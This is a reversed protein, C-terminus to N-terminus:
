RGAVLFKLRLVKKEAYAHLVYAGQALTSVDLTYGLRSSFSHSLLQQGQMNYVHIERFAENSELHLLRSAPNPYVGIYGPKAPDNVLRVLVEADADMINVNGQITLFGQRSVQYSYQGPFLEEYSYLGPEYGLGQLSIRADDVLLGSQNTVVFNLSYIPFNEFVPSLRNCVQNSIMVQYNGPVMGANQYSRSTAGQIPQGDVLWQYNLASATSTYQTGQVFIDPVLLPNQGIFVRRDGIHQSVGDSIRLSVTVYGTDPYIFSPNQLSSGPLDRDEIDFIWEWEIPSGSSRDVFHVMSHVCTFDTDFDAFLIEDCDQQMWGESMGYIESHLGANFIAEGMVSVDTIRLYEACIKISKGSFLWAPVEGFGKISILSDANGIALLSGIIDLQKGGQINLQTKPHTLLHEITQDDYFTITAHNILHVFRNNGEIKMDLNRNTVFELLRGGANLSGLDPLHQDGNSFYFSAGDALLHLNEDDIQLNRLGQIESGRINLAKGSESSSIIDHVSIQLGSMDVEGGQIDIVAALVDSIFKWSAHESDFLYRLGHGFGEPLLMTNNKLQGSFILSGPGESKLGSGPSYFSAHVHLTNGNFALVVDTEVEWNFSYCGADETLSVMYSHDGTFSNHDFVVHDDNGPILTAANGGSSLSWNAPDSWDGSHGIWYFTSRVAIDKTQLCLSFDQKGNKLAGKHSIVLTYTGPAPKEILIKETNDIANDAKVPDAMSQEPNLLWPFYENGEQDFMRMDLDNVLMPDRPNMAAQPPTGPPDTWSLTAIIDGTGDADFTFEYTNGSTLTKELIFYNANDQYLLMRAAKEVNLLGWGHRYDPGPGEGAQNVTQIALSKLTAARMPKGNNLSAYLQQLLLLSGTANPAAMSTGSKNGYDGNTETSYLNVGAAVLDPKVRGDDVPGWASFNSMRVQSSERYGNPIKAVAGIALVNKAVAEPGICDYPGDPPRSGDGADSRDNGAAWVITYYPANYAIDDIRQSLNSYFGFRYDRTSDPHATWRWSGDNNRTWGLQIGYSHNSILMGDKAANAMEVLDNNWDYGDVNVQYAMGRANPQLGAAAITGAVHTAHSDDSNAGDRMRVRGEFEPHSTQIRGADWVGAVRGFGTLFLRLRGGPHLHSAGTTVAAAANRTEFYVPLGHEDVYQLEITRGDSFTQRVPWRHLRAYELAQQRRVHHEAEWIASRESLYATDAMMPYVMQGSVTGTFFWPFFLLIFVLFKM